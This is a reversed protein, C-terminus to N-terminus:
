ISKEESKRDDEKPKEEEGVATKESKKEQEDEDKRDSERQGDEKREDKKTEEKEMGKERDAEGQKMEEKEDSEKKEDEKKEGDKVVDKMSVVNSENRAVKVKSTRIVKQNLTYGKQMEDIVTSDPYESTTVQVIAEHKYPDFLTGTALIQQLGAKALIQKMNSYIMEMGKLLEGVDVRKDSALAREMDDLVRLIEVVLKESAVKVFEEKDKAVWKKYNDFEAQLYKLRNLCDDALKTEKELESKLAAITEEPSQAPELQVEPEALQGRRIEAIAKSDKKKEAKPGKKMVGGKKKAM